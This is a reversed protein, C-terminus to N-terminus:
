SHAQGNMQQSLKCSDVIARRLALDDPLSKKLYIHYFYGQSVQLAAIFEYKSGENLYESVTKWPEFDKADKKQSGYARVLVMDPHIERLYEISVGNHAIHTDALGFLDYSKWRSFYPLAGVDSALLSYGSPQFEALNKGLLVDSNVFNHNYNYAEKLESEKSCFFMFLLLLAAVIEQRKRTFQSFYPLTLIIVPLFLQFAFRDAYDMVHSAPLYVVGYLMLTLLTIFRYTINKVLYLFSLLVVPYIIIAFLCVLFYALSVDVLSKAYATNPLLYGFYQFRWIFYAGGFLGAALLFVFHPIKGKRDIAFKIFAAASIIAGEPRTLPLLLSAIYFWRVDGRGSLLFLFLEFCLVLYLPTELCSYFHIYAYPNAVVVLTFWFRAWQNESLSQIRLLLWLLLAMGLGKFFYLPSIRALHPILALFTYTGSTYAEVRQQDANWNWIGYRTFNDAYRLSIFVDDPTFPLYALSLGVFFATFLSWQWLSFEPLTSRQM